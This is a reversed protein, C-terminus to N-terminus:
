LLQMQSPTFGKINGNAMQVFYDGKYTDNSVILGPAGKFKTSIIKVRDGKRFISKSVAEALEERIMDRIESKKM